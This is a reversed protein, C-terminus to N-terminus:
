FSKNSKEIGTHPHKKNKKQFIKFYTILSTNKRQYFLQVFKEFM